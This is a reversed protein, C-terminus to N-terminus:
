MRNTGYLEVFSAACFFDACGEGQCRAPRAGLQRSVPTSVPYGTSARSPGRTAKTCCCLLATAYDRFDVVIGANGLKDIIGTSGAIGFRDETTPAIASHAALGRTAGSALGQKMLHIDDNFTRRINHDLITTKEGFAIGCPWGCVALEVSPIADCAAM